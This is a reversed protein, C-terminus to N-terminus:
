MCLPPNGLEMSPSDLNAYRFCSVEVARPVIQHCSESIHMVNLVGDFQFILRGFGHFFTQSPSATVLAHGLKKSNYLFSSYL